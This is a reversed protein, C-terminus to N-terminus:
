DRREEDREEQRYRRVEYLDPHVTNYRRWADAERETAFLAPEHRSEMMWGVDDGAWLGWM